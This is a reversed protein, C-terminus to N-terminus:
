NFLEKIDINLANCIRFLTVISTKVEGREIRGIVNRPVDSELSLNEQSLNKSLRIERLKEGVSKIFIKESEIM